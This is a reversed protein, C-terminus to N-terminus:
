NFGIICYVWDPLVFGRDGDDAVKVRFAQPFLFSFDRVEQAIIIYVNKQHLLYKEFWALAVVLDCVIIYDTM